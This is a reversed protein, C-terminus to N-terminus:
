WMSMRCPSLDQATDARSCGCSQRKVNSKVISAMRASVCRGVRRTSAPRSTHRDLRVASILCQANHQPVGRPSMSPTHQMVKAPSGRPPLGGQPPLRARLTCCTTTDADGLMGSSSAATKTPASTPIAAHEASPMEIEELLAAFPRCLSTKVPSDAPTSTDTAHSCRWRSHWSGKLLEQVDLHAATHIL